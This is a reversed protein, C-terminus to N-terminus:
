FHLGTHLGFWFNDVTDYADNVAQSDRISNDLLM